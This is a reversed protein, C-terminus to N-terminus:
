KVELVVLLEKPGHIGRVLVGEIDATRSSGTILVCNRNPLHKLAERLTPVIKDVLIVNIPPVLSSLRQHGPASTVLLSGSEAIACEARSVGVEATWLDDSSTALGTAPEIWCPKQLIMSLEEHTILKGGAATLKAVFQHTPAIPGGGDSTGRSVGEEAERLLPVKELEHRSPPHLSQESSSAAGEGPEHRAVGEGPSPSQQM